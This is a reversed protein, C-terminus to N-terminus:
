ALGLEELLQAVGNEEVSPCTRDAQLALEPSGGGMAVGLAATQILELDNMSDGVGITDSLPAGLAQCVARVAQGKNVATYMVDGNVTTTDGFVDQVVFRFWPALVKRPGELAAANPGMFSLKYVPRGDYEDIPRIDYLGSLVERMRALESNAAPGELAAPDLPDGYTIEQCELNRYLGTMADLATRVIPAPIPQNLIVQEGLTVYGGASCVIGDFGFATLEAPLMVRSRGTCLFLKHGNQKARRLAQAVRQSMPRGPLLLTGDIDLFILKPM